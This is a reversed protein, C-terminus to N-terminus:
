PLAKLIQNMATMTRAAPVQHEQLLVTAIAQLALEDYARDKTPSWLREEVAQWFQGWDETFAREAAAIEARDGDKRARKLAALSAKASDLRAALLDAIPLMARELLVREVDEDVREVWQGEPIPAYSASWRVDAPRSGNHRALRPEARSCDALLSPLSGPPAQLPGVFGSLGDLIVQEVGIEGLAGGLIRRALRGEQFVLAAASRGSEAIRVAVTGRVGMSLDASIPGISRLECFQIVYVDFETGPLPSAPGARYALTSVGHAQAWSELTRDLGELTRRGLSPPLILWGGDSLSGHM